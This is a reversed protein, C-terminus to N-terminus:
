PRAMILSVTLMVPTHHFANHATFLEGTVAVHKGYLMKDFSSGVFIMQMERSLIPKDAFGGGDACMRKARDLRLVPYYGREDTKPNEGFNPPGYFMMRQVTGIVTAAGYRECPQAQALAPLFLIGIFAAAKM